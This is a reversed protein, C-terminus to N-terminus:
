ESVGIALEVRYYRYLRVDPWYINLFPYAMQAKRAPVFM